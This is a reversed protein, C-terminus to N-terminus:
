STKPQKFTIDAEVELGDRVATVRRLNVGVPYEGQPDFAYIPDLSAVLANTVQAPLSAGNVSLQAGTLRLRNASGVPTASLEFPVELPGLLARRGTVIVRNDNLQVRVNKTGPLRALVLRAVSDEGVRAWAWTRGASIVRVRSSKRLAAWDFRLDDIELRASEVPVGEALFDRADVDLRAIRGESKARSIVELNLGSKAPDGLQSLEVRVRKFRGRLVDQGRRGEVRVQVNANPFRKQLANRAKDAIIGPTVIANYLLAGGALLALLPNAAM